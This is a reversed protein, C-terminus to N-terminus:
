SRVLDASRRLHNGGVLVLIKQTCGNDWLRFLTFPENIKHALKQRWTEANKTGVRMCIWGITSPFTLNCFIIDPSASARETEGWHFSAPLVPSLRGSTFPYLVYITRVIPLGELCCRVLCLVVFGLYVGAHHKKPHVKQEPQFHELQNVEWLKAGQHGETGGIRPNLLYGLGLGLQKSTSACGAMPISTQRVLTTDKQPGGLFIFRINIILFESTNLRLILTEGEDGELLISHPIWTKHIM